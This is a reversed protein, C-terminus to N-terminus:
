RVMASMTLLLRLLVGWHGCILLEGSARTASTAFYKDLSDHASKATAIFGVGGAGALNSGVHHCGAVNVLLAISVAESSM